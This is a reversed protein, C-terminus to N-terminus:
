ERVGQLVSVPRARRPSGRASVRSPRAACRRRCCAFRPRPHLHVEDGTIQFSPCMAGTMSRCSGVGVCRNVANVLSGRDKPLRARAHGRSAAAEAGDAPGGRLGGGVGARWSQVGARPRLHAQVARVCGAPPRTCRGCSLPAPAATGHEGSLSGGHETVLRAADRMFRRFTRLGEETEFDFSIRVHVCGEGFHGFSAACSTSRWSTTSNACTTPSIRPRSPPSGGLQALGRRRRAAPHRHGGGGGPDAM